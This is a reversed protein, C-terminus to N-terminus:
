HICSFSSVFLNYTQSTKGRGYNPHLSQFAHKKAFHQRLNNAKRGKEAKKCLFCQFLMNRGAKPAHLM